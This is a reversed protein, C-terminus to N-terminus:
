KREFYEQLIKKAIPGAVSSGEGGNEVLVTLIIEPDYFPAFVTIWAHPKKGKDAVEATGTKCAIPIRVFKASGSAEEIYNRNDVPLRENKVKFDFFPWAVGGTDCSEKMGERVLEIYKKDIFNQRKIEAKQSKLLHPKYLTGGNAFVNTIMNVQLPTTLLYGQGIGYNYTDGLYWQEGIEKKKWSPSPVIGDNEGELDIGMQEGLGFNKAFNSINEVGALEAAKYFFIDNSRKIARVIDLPGETKGYQLFYWNGFSFEGIRLIGIDEIITDKHIAGNSLAAVSTVLKFISGPPYVGSIARDLLPQNETDGLIEEISQYGVLDSSAQTFINPDFTPKSYLSLISGDRPDSAIVAGKEVDTMADKISLALDLDLTTHLNKGKIPEKQGLSRIEKGKADQEMLEKGNEGHLMKEYTKELGMKGVYDSVAYDKLAPLIMENESIYGLYGLVHAFAGKYLYERRVVSQVKNAESMLKLAQERSIIETRGEEEIQFVQSNSVLPKGNRDYIIGRPAPIIKTRTRNNEALSKFYNARIVQLYFLRVIIIGTVLFLLFLPAGSLFKSLELNQGLSRRKNAGSSGAGYHHPTSVYDFFAPGIKVM